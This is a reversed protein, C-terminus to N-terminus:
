VEYSLEVGYTRCIEQFRLASLGLLNTAKRLSLHGEEVARHVRTVLDRSFPPPPPAQALGGNATLRRDDLAEASVRSLHGLGVLRWKLAASSVRLSTATANLWDHLDVDGRREWRAAVVDEPMLLAAAFNNALKEVRNGKTSPPDRPEVRKPAMADWTLIHFLEHALDFSRRGAPDNRNILITHLGPLHVAAGSIGDPADVFLVQVKLEREIASALLDAPVDGLKWEDGIQEAAAHADEFSSRETLELKSGIHSRPVGFRELLTRHTAVWVGAKREFDNLIDAAVREARFSFRGEGVLRFPDTLEDLEVRLVKAARALEEATISRDGAEIAALTQRHKLGMRDALAQQTWERRERFAKLRRGIRDSPSSSM